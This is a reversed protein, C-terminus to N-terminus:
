AHPDAWHARLADQVQPDDDFWGNGQLDLRGELAVCVAVAAQEPDYPHAEIAKQILTRLGM